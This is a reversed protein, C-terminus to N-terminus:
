ETSLLIFIFSTPSDCFYRIFYEQTSFYHSINDTSMGISISVLLAAKNVAKVKQTQIKHYIPFTNKIAAKHNHSRLFRSLLETKMILKDCTSKRPTHRGKTVKAIKSLLSLLLLREESERVLASTRALRDTEVRIDQNRIPGTLNSNAENEM